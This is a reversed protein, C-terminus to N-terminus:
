RSPLEPLKCLRPLIFGPQLYPKLDNWPITIPGPHLMRPAISYDQFIITLGKADLKWNEPDLIIEHLVGPLAEAGAYSNEYHQGLVTVLDRLCHEEILHDWKSNPQFVDESRLERQETLRWNLNMSIEWPHAGRFGWRDVFAAVMQENVVGVTVNLEGDDEAAWEARWQDNPAAKGQSALKQATVLIARNWASWEATTRDTQPWSVQLTGYGPITEIGELTGQEPEDSAREERNMLLISRWVFTVGGKQKVLHHLDKTRRDYGQKLCAAMDQGFHKRGPPCELATEKLWARQDARVGEVLPPPTAAVTKLFGVAMQEDARSLSPSSCITKEQPTRARACNFSAAHAAGGFLLLAIWWGTRM